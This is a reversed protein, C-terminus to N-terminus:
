CRCNWGSCSRKLGGCIIAVFPFRTRPSSSSLTKSTTIRTGTPRQGLM